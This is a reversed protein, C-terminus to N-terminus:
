PAKAPGAASLSAASDTGGPTEARAEVASMPRTPAARPRCHQMGAARANTSPAQGGGGPGTRDTAAPAAAAPRPPGASWM